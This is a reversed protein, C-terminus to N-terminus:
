HPVPCAAVAYQPLQQCGALRDRALTLVDRRTSRHDRRCWALWRLRAPRRLPRRRWRVYRALDVPRAAQGCSWAILQRRGARPAATRRVRAGRPQCAAQSARQRTHHQCDNANATEYAGHVYAAAVGNGIAVDVTFHSAAHARKGLQLFTRAARIAATAAFGLGALREGFRDVLRAARQRYDGGRSGSAAGATPPM